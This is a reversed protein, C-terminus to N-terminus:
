LRGGGAAWWRRLEAELAERTNLGPDALVRDLLHRLAAGVVAGQGAGLVAMVGRGDIALERTSLPPAAALAAEVAARTVQLATAAARREGAPLAAVEAAALALVDAARGPSVAALWRRVEVPEVPLGAERGGRRCAHPRLLAVVDDSLRRPLRLGILV